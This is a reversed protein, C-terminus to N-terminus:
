MPQLIGSNIRDQEKEKRRYERYVDDPVYKPPRALLTKKGCGCVHDFTYIWPVHRKCVQILVM